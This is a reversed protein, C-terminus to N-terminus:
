PGYTISCSSTSGNADLIGNHLIIDGNNPPGGGCLLSTQVTIVLEGNADLTGNQVAFDDVGNCRGVWSITAGPMAPTTAFTLLINQNTVAGEAIPALAADTMSCSLVTAISAQAHAPLMVANVIPKKWVETTGAAGAIALVKLLRRRHKM